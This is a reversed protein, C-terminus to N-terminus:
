IQMPMFERLYFIESQEPVHETILATCTQSNLEAFSFNKDKKFRTIPTNALKVM